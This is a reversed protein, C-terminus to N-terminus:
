YMEGYDNFLLSNGSALPNKEIVVEVKVISYAIHSRHSSYELMRLAHKTVTSKYPITNEWYSCKDSIIATFKLYDVLLFFTVEWKLSLNNPSCFGLDKWTSYQDMQILYLLIDDYSKFLCM